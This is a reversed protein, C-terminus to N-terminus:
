RIIANSSKEIKDEPINQGTNTVSVKIYQTARNDPPLSFLLSAKERGVVDFSVSIKGGQPTYKLANSMLNGFIKEVKDEDLWMLFTDELGYTNLDICKDSANVQFVSVQRQLCAIIDTRKVQLRLTDNELKNFDMMQNVLRLMRSVSRQVIRLLNKDEGEIRSSNCLQTVPGSIM